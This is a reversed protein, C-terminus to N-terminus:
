TCTMRRAKYLQDAFVLPAKFEFHIKVSNYCCGYRVYRVVPDVLKVMQCKHQLKNGSDLDSAIM